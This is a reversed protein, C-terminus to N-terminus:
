GYIRHFTQRVDNLQGIVHYGLHVRLQALDSAINHLFVDNGTEISGRLHGIRKRPDPFHCNASMRVYTYISGRTSPVGNRLLAAPASFSGPSSDGVFFHFGNVVSLDVFVEPHLLVTYLISNYLNVTDNQCSICFRHRARQKLIGVKIGKRCYIYCNKADAISIIENGSFTRSFNKHCQQLLIRCGSYNHLAKLSTIKSM